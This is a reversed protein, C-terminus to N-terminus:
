RQVIGGPRPLRPRPQGSQQDAGFYGRRDPFEALPPHDQDRSAFRRRSVFGRNGDGSQLNGGAIRGIQGAARQMASGARDPLLISVISRVPQGSSFRPRIAMRRPRRGWSAGAMTAANTSAPNSAISTGNFEGSGNSEMSIARLSAGAVTSTPAP